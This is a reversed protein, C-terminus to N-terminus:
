SKDGKRWFILAYGVIMLCLIGSALLIWYSGPATLLYVLAGPQDGSGSDQVVQQPADGCFVEASYLAENGAADAAIVTFINSGSALSLDWTFNGAADMTVPNGNVTLSVCDTARGSIVLKDSKQSMGNYDKTMSLAPPIRDVFVDRRLEWTILNEDTYSVSVSNWDDVLTMTMTGSGDLTATSGRQNVRLQVSQGNMDRYAVPFSLSNLLESEPLQLKMDGLIATRRLPTSQVGNINMSVEITIKSIGPTYSLEASQYDRVKYTDYRTPVTADEEFVAVLVSDAKSFDTPWNVRVLNELPLVTTTIEPLSEDVSTNTWAFTESYAFDFIDTGNEEYWVYLKLFYNEYSSLKKLSLKIEEERGTRTSSDYLEKEAGNHSVMASIRFNFRRDEQGGVKFRVTMNNDVIQDITFYEVYIGAMYDHVSVELTNNKGKDYRIKWQGAEAGRIVYYMNNESFITETNDAAITPDYEEDEPSIFVVKPQEVDWKVWIVIDKEKKLYILDEEQTAASATIAMSGILLLALVISIIRKM